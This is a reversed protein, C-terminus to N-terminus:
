IRASMKKVGGYKAFTRLYRFLDADPDGYLIAALRWWKGRRTTVLKEDGRWQTLLDYANEVAREQCRRPQGLKGAGQAPRRM